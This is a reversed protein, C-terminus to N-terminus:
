VATTKKAGGHYLLSVIFLIIGAAACCVAFILLPKTAADALQILWPRLSVPIDSLSALKSYILSLGILLGSTELIGYVAFVLGLVRYTTKIRRNVLAIGLMLVLIVGALGWFAERYYVFGQRADTLSHEADSLQSTIPGPIKLGTEAAVDVSDPIQPLTIEWAMDFGQSLLEPPLGAFETPPKALVAAKLATRINDLVPEVPINLDLTPSDGLLYSYYKPVLLGIQEKFYPQIVANVTDLYPTPDLTMGAITLDPLNDILVQRIYPPFDVQNIISVALSPDLVSTKLTSKLDLTGGHILYAYIDSVSKEAANKLAPANDAVATQISAIVEPHAAIEQTKQLEPVAKENFLGVIDLKNIQSNVFGPNLVTASTTVAAGMAALCIFLLISLLLNAAVRLIEM